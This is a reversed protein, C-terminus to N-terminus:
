PVYPPRPLEGGDITAMQHLEDPTISDSLVRAYGDVMGVVAVGGPHNSNCTGRIGSNIGHALKVGNVDMPAMWNIGSNQVEIILVTNAPNDVFQSPDLGTQPRFAYQPGTVVCYSTDGIAFPRDDPCVYASPIQAAFSANHTSDWPEDLRLQAYLARAEAGLYPLIL